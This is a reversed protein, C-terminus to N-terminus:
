FSHWPLMPWRKGARIFQIKLWCKTKITCHGKTFIRVQEMAMTVVPSLASKVKNAEEMSMGTMLRVLFLLLNTICALNSATASLEMQCQEVMDTAELVQRYTAEMLTDKIHWFMTPMLFECLNLPIALVWCNFCPTTTASLDHAGPPSCLDPQPNLGRGCMAAIKWGQIEFFEPYYYDAIVM